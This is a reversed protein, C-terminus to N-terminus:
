KYNKKKINVFLEIISIDLKVSSFVGILITSIYAGAHVIVSMSLGIEPNLGLALFIAIFSAQFTGVFGPSSPVMASLSSFSVLLFLESIGLSLGLENSVFFYSVVHIIWIMASLILLLFFNKPNNLSKAGLLINKTYKKVSDPLFFDLKLKKGFSVLKKQFVFISFFLIFFIGIIFIIQKIENPLFSISNSGILFFVVLVLVEVIRNVIVTSLAVSKSIGTIKSLLFARIVEGLRLPLLFNSLFGINTIHFSQWFSIHVIPKVILRWSLARIPFQLTHLFITFLFLFFNFSSIIGAVKSVDFLVIIALLLVLSVLYSIFTKGNM